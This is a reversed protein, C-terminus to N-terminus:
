PKRRLQNLHLLDSPTVALPTFIKAELTQTRTETLAIRAMADPHRGGYRKKLDAFREALTVVQDHLVRKDAYNVVEAERFPRLDVVAADLYVHERVIQAVEPFGKAHLLDAGWDAHNRNTGLCPTKGLDHLLAGTEILELDLSFGAEMLNGGLWMAVEMVLVSHAWINPLMGYQAMLALCQDRTPLTIQNHLHNM